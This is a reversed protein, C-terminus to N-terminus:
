ATRRLEPNANCSDIFDIAGTYKAFGKRLLFLDLLKTLGDRSEYSEVYRKAIEEGARNFGDWYRERIKKFKWPM